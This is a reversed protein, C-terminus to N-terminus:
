APELISPYFGEKVFQANYKIEFYDFMRMTRDEIAIKYGDVEFVEYNDEIEDVIELQMGTMWGFGGYYVKLYQDKLDLQDLKEKALEHIRVEMKGVEQSAAQMITWHIYVSLVRGESKNYYIIPLIALFNYSLFSNIM